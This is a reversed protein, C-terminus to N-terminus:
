CEHDYDSGRLSMPPATDLHPMIPPRPFYPHEGSEELVPDVDTDRGKGPEIGSCVLNRFTLAADIYKIDCRLKQEGYQVRILVDAHGDKTAKWLIHLEQLDLECSSETDDQWFVKTM